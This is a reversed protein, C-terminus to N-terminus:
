EEILKVEKNINEKVFEAAASDTVSWIVPIGIQDALKAVRSATEADLESRKAVEIYPLHGWRSDISIYKKERNRAEKALSFGIM